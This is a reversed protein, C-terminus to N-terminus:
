MEDIEYSDNSRDFVPRPAAAKAKRAELEVQVWDANSFRSYEGEYYRMVKEFKADAQTLDDNDLRTHLLQRVRELLAGSQRSRRAVDAFDKQTASVEDHRDDHGANGLLNAIRGVVMGKSDKQLIETGLDLYDIVGFGETKDYFINSPKVDIAIGRERTATFTDILELLQQDTVQSLTDSDIGALEQGPMLEAVTVGDEYSAAIIKELHPLGSAKISAKVRGDIERANITDGRAIRVAYEKSALAVKAVDANSGSGLYNPHNRRTTPDAFEHKLEKVASSFEVYATLLDARATISEAGAGGVDRLYTTVDKSSAIHSSASGLALEGIHNFLQERDKQSELREDAFAALQAQRIEPSKPTLEIMKKTKFRIQNINAYFNYFTLIHLVDVGAHLGPHVHNNVELDALYLETAFLPRSNALWQNSHDFLKLM